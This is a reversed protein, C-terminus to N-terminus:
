LVLYEKIGSLEKIKKNLLFMAEDKKTKIEKTKHIPHLNIIGFTEEARKDIDYVKEEFSEELFERVTKEWKDHPIFQKAISLKLDNGLIIRGEIPKQEGTILSFLTSKGAGNPGMLTLKQGRRINSSSEKLILKNEHYYFTLDQFSLVSEGWTSAINKETDANSYINEKAM